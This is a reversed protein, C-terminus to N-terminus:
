SSSKLSLLFEKLIEVEMLGKSFSKGFVKVSSIFYQVLIKQRQKQLRPIFIFYTIGFVIELLTLNTKM